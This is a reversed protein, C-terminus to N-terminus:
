HMGQLCKLIHRLADAKEGYREDGELMNLMDDVLDVAAYHLDNMEHMGEADGFDEEDSFPRAGSEDIEGSDIKGTGDCAKCPKENYWNGNTVKGTGDCHPCETSDEDTEELVKLRAYTEPLIKDTM